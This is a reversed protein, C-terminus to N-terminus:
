SASNSVIDPNHYRAKLLHHTIPNMPDSLTRLLRDTIDSSCPLDRVLISRSNWNDQPAYIKPYSSVRAGFLGWGCITTLRGVQSVQLDVRSSLVKAEIQDQCCCSFLLGNSRPGLVQSWSNAPHSLSVLAELKLWFSSMLREWVDQAQLMKSKTAFSILFHWPVEIFIEYGGWACYESSSKRIWVLWHGCPRIFICDFAKVRQLRIRCCKFCYSSGRHSLKNDRSHQLM